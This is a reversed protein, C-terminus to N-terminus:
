TLFETHIAYFMASAHICQDNFAALFQAVILGIYTRTRLSSAPQFTMTTGQAMPRISCSLTTYWTTSVGSRSSPFGHRARELLSPPLVHHLALGRCCPPNRCPVLVPEPLDAHEKLPLVLYVFSHAPKHPSQLSSTNRVRDDAAHGQICVIVAASR